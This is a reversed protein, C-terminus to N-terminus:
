FGKWSGEQVRRLCMPCRAGTNDSANRREHCEKPLVRCLGREFEGYGVKRRGGDLMKRARLLLAFRAERAVGKGPV